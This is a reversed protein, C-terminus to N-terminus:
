RAHGHGFFFFFGYWLQFRLVIYVYVGYLHASMTVRCHNVTRSQGLCRQGREERQEGENGRETKEKDRGVSGSKNM